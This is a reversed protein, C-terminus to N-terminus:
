VPESRPLLRKWEPDITEYHEYVLDILQKGNVLRLDQRTRELHLADASYTGLTVFLGLESGGHAPAGALRKVASAVFGQRITRDVLAKTTAPAPNSGEVKPNHASDLPHRATVAQTPEHWRGPTERHRCTAEHHSTDARSM